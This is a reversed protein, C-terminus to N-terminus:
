LPAKNGKESPFPNQQIVIHTQGEEDIAIKSAMHFSSLDIGESIERGQTFICSYHDKL